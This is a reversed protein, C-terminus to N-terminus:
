NQESLIGPCSNLTATPCRDSFINTIIFFIFTIQLQQQITSLPAPFTRFPSEPCSKITNFNHVTHFLDKHLTASGFPDQTPVNNFFMVCSLVTQRFLFFFTFPKFVILINESNNLLTQSYGKMQQNTTIKEIFLIFNM